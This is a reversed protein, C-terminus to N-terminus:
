RTYIRYTFIPHKRFFAPQPHAKFFFATRVWHTPRAHNGVASVFWRGRCARLLGLRRTLSSNGGFFCSRYFNKTSSEGKMKSSFCQTFEDPPDISALGSFAKRKRKVYVEDTNKGIAGVSFRVDPHEGIAGNFFRSFTYPSYAILRTPSMSM